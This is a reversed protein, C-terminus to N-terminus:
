SSVFPHIIDGPYLLGNAFTDGEHHSYCRCVQDHASFKIDVNKDSGSPQHRHQHVILGRPYWGGLLWYKPVPKNSINIVSIKGHDLKDTVQQLDTTKEPEKWCYFQGDRYLQFIMLLPTLFWVVKFWVIFIYNFQDNTCDNKWGRPYWGGLLWYKPVPKNSINIVSIKCNRFLTNMLLVLIRKGWAYTVKASPQQKCPFQQPGLCYISSCCAICHGFSLFFFFLVFLSRCKQFLL